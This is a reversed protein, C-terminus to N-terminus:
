ALCAILEEVKKDAIMMLDAFENVMVVNYPEKKLVLHSSDMNDGPKGFPDTILLGMSEFANIKYNYGALNRVALASMLKYRREMENVCWCLANVVDKMGTVVKTLLHPIVEYISLELMKPDIMIFRIDETNQKICFVLSHAMLWLM